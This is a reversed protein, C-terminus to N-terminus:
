LKKGFLIHKKRMESVSGQARITGLAGISSRGNGVSKRAGKTRSFFAPKKRRVILDRLKHSIVRGTAQRGVFWIYKDVMAKWTKLKDRQVFPKFELLVDNLNVAGRYRVLAVIPSIRVHRIFVLSPASPAYATNAQPFCAKSGENGVFAASGPPLSCSAPSSPRSAGGTLGPPDSSAELSGGEGKGRADRDELGKEELSVPQSSPSRAASSSAKATNPGEESPSAQQAAVGSSAPVGPGTLAKAGKLPTPSSVLSPHGPGAVAIGPHKGKPNASALVLEAPASASTPPFFFAYLQEVLNASLRVRLPDIHLILSDFVQWVTGALDVFRWSCRVSIAHASVKSRPGHGGQDGLLQELLKGRKRGELEENWDFAERRRDDKTGLRGAGGRMSAFELGERRGRGAREHEPHSASLPSGSSLSAGGGQSSTPRGPSHLFFANRYASLDLFVDQEDDVAANPQLVDLLPTIVPSAVTGPPFLLVLLEAASFPAESWATDEQHRWADGDGVSDARASPTEDESATGAAELANTEASQWMLSRRRRQEDGEWWDADHADGAAFPTDDATRRRTRRKEKARAREGEGQTGAEDGSGRHRRRPKANMAAGREGQCSEGTTSTGPLLSPMAVSSALDQDKGGAPSSAPQSFAKSKRKLRMDVQRKCWQAAAGVFKNRAHLTGIQPLQTSRIPQAAGGVLTRLRAGEDENREDTEGTEVKSSACSPLLPFSQSSEADDLVSPLAPSASGARGRSGALAAAAPGLLPLSPSAASSFPIRHASPTGQTAKARNILRVSPFPLFFPLDRSSSRSSPEASFMASTTSSGEAFDDGEGAADATEEKKETKEKAELTGEPRRREGAVEDVSAKSPSGRDDGRRDLAGVGGPASSAREAEQYSSTERELADERKDAEEAREAGRRAELAAERARLESWPGPEARSCQGSAPERAAQNQADAGETEGRRPKRRLGGLMQLARDRVVSKSLLMKGAASVSTITSAGDAQANDSAVASSPLALQLVSATGLNGASDDRTAGDVPARRKKGLRKLLSKMRETQLALRPAPLASPHARGQDPRGDRCDSFFSSTAKELDEPRTTRPAPLVASAGRSARRAEAGGSSVGTGRGVTADRTCSFLASSSASSLASVASASSVPSVPALPLPPLASGPSSEHPLSAVAADQPQEHPRSSGPNVPTGAVHVRGESDGQSARAPGLSSATEASELNNRQEKSGQLAAAASLRRGTFCCFPLNHPGALLSWCVENILVDALIVKEEGAGPPSQRSSDEGERDERERMEGERGRGEGARDGGPVGTDCAGSRTRVADGDEGENEERGRMERMEREEEVAAAAAAAAAAYADAGGRGRGEASFCRPRWRLNGGAGDPAGQSEDRSSRCRGATARGRASERPDRAQAQVSSSRCGREEEAQLYALLQRRIAASRFLAARRPQAPTSAPAQPKERAAFPLSAGLEGPKTADGRSHGPRQPRAPSSACPVPPAFSSLQDEKIAELGVEVSSDEDKGGFRSVLDEEEEDESSSGPGGGRDDEGDGAKRLRSRSGRGRRGAPRGAAVGSANRSDARSGAPGGSELEAQAAPDFPGRKARSSSGSVVSYLGGTAGRIAAAAASAAAAAASAAMAGRSAKVSSPSALSPRKDGAVVPAAAAATPLSSETGKCATPAKMALHSLPAKKKLAAARRPVKVTRVLLFAHTLNQLLRCVDASSALLCTHCFLRGSSRGMPLGTEAMLSLDSLWLVPKTVRSACRRPAGPDCPPASGSADGREERGRGAGRAGSQAVVPANAHTASQSDRSVTRRTERSPSRSLPQRGNGKAPSEAAAGNERTGDVPQLQAEPSNSHRPAAPGALADFAKARGPRAARAADGQRPSGTEAARLRTPLGGLGSRSDTPAPSAHTLRSVGDALLNPAELRPGALRRRAALSISQRQPASFFPTGRRRGGQRRENEAPLASELLADETSDSACRWSESDSSPSTESADAPRRSDGKEERELKKGRDRARGLRELFLTTQSLRYAGRRREDGQCAWRDGGSSARGEEFDGEEERDLSLWREGIKGSAQCVTRRRQYAASQARRLVRAQRLLGSPLLASADLAQSGHPRAEGGRREGGWKGVGLRFRSLPRRSADGGTAVPFHLGRTPKGRSRQRVPASRSAPRGALRSPRRPKPQSRRRGNEKSRAPFADELQESETEDLDHGPSWMSYFSERSSNSVSYRPVDFFEADTDSETATDLVAGVRHVDEEELSRLDRGRAGLRVSRTENGECADVGRTTGAKRGKDSARARGGDGREEDRGESKRRKQRGWQRAGQLSRRRRRRPPRTGCHWMLGGPAALSAVSGCLPSVRGLLDISIRSSTPSASAAQGRGGIKIRCKLAVQSASLILQATVRDGLSCRLDELAEEEALAQKEEEEDLPFVEVCESQPWDGWGQRRAAESMLALSVPAGPAEIPAAFLLSDSPLSQLLLSPPSSAWPETARDLSPPCFDPPRGCTASHSVQKRGATGPRADLPMFLPSPEPRLPTKLLGWSGENADSKPFDKDRSVGLNPDRREPTERANTTGRSESRNGFEEGEGLRKQREDSERAEEKGSEGRGSPRGEKGRSEASGQETAEASCARGSGRARRELQRHLWAGCRIKAYPQLLPIVDVHAAEQRVQGPLLLPSPSLSPLELCSEPNEADGAGQACAAAGAPDVALPAFLWPSAALFPSGVVRFFVDRRLELLADDVGLEGLALPPRARRPWSAAASGLSAASFALSTCASTAFPIALPPVNARRVSAAPLAAPVGPFLPPTRATAEIFHANAQPQLCLLTVEVVVLPASSKSRKGSAPSSPSGAARDRQGSRADQSHAAASDRVSVDSAVDRLQECFSLVVARCADALLVVHRICVLTSPSVLVTPASVICFLQMRGVRPPPSSAVVSSAAERGSAATFRTERPRGSVGRRKRRAGDPGCSERDTTAGGEDRTQVGQGLTGPEGVTENERLIEVQIGPVRVFPLVLSQPPPVPPPVRVGCLRALAAPSVRGFARGRGESQEDRHGGARRHEAASFGDGGPSGLLAKGADMDRETDKVSESLGGARLGWRSVGLTGPVRRSFGAARRAKRPGSDAAGGDGAGDASGHIPFSTSRSLLSSSSLSPDSSGFSDGERSGVSALPEPVSRAPVGKPGNPNPGAHASHGFRLPADHRAELLSDQAPLAPPNERVPKRSGPSQLAPGGAVPTSSVYCHGSAPGSLQYAARYRPQSARASGSARNSLLSTSAPAAPCEFGLFTHHVTLVCQRTTLALPNGSPVAATKDVRHAEPLRASAPSQPAFGRSYSRFPLPSHEDLDVLSVRTAAGGERQRGARVSPDKAAAGGVVGATRNAEDAGSGAERGWLPSPEEATEGELSRRRRGGERASSFARGCDRRGDDSETETASSSFGSSTARRTDRGQAPRRKRSGSTDGSSSWGEEHGEWTGLGEFWPRRTSATSGRASAARHNARCEKAQWRDGRRHSGESSSGSPLSHRRGSALLRQKEGSRRPSEEDSERHQRAIRLVRSRGTKHLRGAAGHGSTTDGDEREALPLRPVIENRELSARRRSTKGGRGDSLSSSSAVEWGRMPADVSGSEGRGAWSREEGGSEESSSSSRDVGERRWLTEKAFAPPRASTHLRPSLPGRSHSAERRRTGRTDSPLLRSAPVPGFHLADRYEVGAISARALAFKGHLDSAAFHLFVDATLNETLRALPSTASPSKRSQAAKWRKLQLLLREQETRTGVLQLFLALHEPLCNATLHRTSASGFRPLEHQAEAAAAGFCFGGESGVSERWTDRKAETKSDSAGQGRGLAPAGAGSGGRSRRPAQVGKVQAQVSVRLHHRPQSSASLECRLPLQKPGNRLWMREAKKEPVGSPGADPSVDPSAGAGPGSGHAGASGRPGRGCAADGLLHAALSVDVQAVHLLRPPSAEGGRADPKRRGGANVESRCVTRARSPARGPATERGATVMTTCQVGQKLAVRAELSASLSLPSPALRARKEADRTGDRKEEGRDQGWGESRRSQQADGAGTRGSSQAETRTDAAERQAEKDRDASRSRAQDRGEALSQSPSPWALQARVSAAAQPIALRLLPVGRIEFLAEAGASQSVDVLFAQAVRRASVAARSARLASRRAKERQRDQLAADAWALQILADCPVGPPLPGARVVGDVAAAAAAAIRAQRRANLQHAQYVATEKAIAGQLRHAEAAATAGWLGQLLRLSVLTAAGTEAVSACCRVQLGGDCHVTVAVIEAEYTSDSSASSPRSSLPPLPVSTGASSAAPGSPSVCTPAASSVAGPAPPGDRPTGAPGSPLCVRSRTGRRSLARESRSEGRSCDVRLVAREQVLAGHLLSGRVVWAPAANVEVRLGPSSAEDRDSTADRLRPRQFLPWMTPSSASAFLTRSAGPSFLLVCFDEVMVQTVVSPRKCCLAATATSAAPDFQAAKHPGPRRASADQAGITQTCASVSNAARESPQRSVSPKATCAGDGDRATESGVLASVSALLPIPPGNADERAAATEANQPAAPTPAGPTAPAVTLGASPSASSHPRAFSAAAARRLLCACGPTDSDQLAVSASSLGFLLLPPSIRPWLSPQPFHSLFCSSRACCRSAVTANIAEVEGASESVRFHAVAARLAPLVVLPPLFLFLDAGTVGCRNSRLTQARACDGEGVAEGSTTHDGCVPLFSRPTPFRMGIASPALVAVHFDRFTLEVATKLAPSASSAFSHVPGNRETSEGDPGPAGSDLAPPAAARPPSDGGSAGSLSADAPNSCAPGPPPSSRESSCPSQTSDRSPRPSPASPFQSTRSSSLGSPHVLVPFSSQPVAGPNKPAAADLALLGHQLQAFRINFLWAAHVTRLIVVTSESVSQILHALLSADEGGAPLRRSSLPPLCVECGIISVCVRQQEWSTGRPRQTSPTGPALGASVASGVSLGADGRGDPQPREHTSDGVALGAADGRGDPQPREHTSDGVALGAASSSPSPTRPSSPGRTPAAVASHSFDARADVFVSEASGQSPSPAESSSLATAPSLAASSSPGNERSPLPPPLTQLAPVGQTPEAVESPSSDPRSRIAQVPKKANVSVRVTACRLLPPLPLPVFALCSSVSTLPPLALPSPSGSRCSPSLSEESCFECSEDTGMEPVAIPNPASKKAPRAAGSARSRGHAQRGFGTDPSVRARSGVSRGREPSTQSSCLSVFRIHPASLAVDVRPHLLPPRGRSPPAGSSTAVLRERPPPRGKPSASAMSETPSPSPPSVLPQVGIILRETSLALNSTLLFDLDCMRVFIRPEAAGAVPVDAKLKALRHTMMDSQAAGLLNQLPLLFEACVRGRPSGIEISVEPRAFPLCVLLSACEAATCVGDAAVGLDTRKAEPSRSNPSKATARPAGTPTTESACLQALRGPFIFPVFRSVAENGADRTQAAREGLLGPISLAGEGRAGQGQAFAGRKALTSEGAASDEAEKAERPESGSQLVELLAPAVRLPLIAVTTSAAVDSSHVVLVNSVLRAVAARTGAENGQAEEAGERSAADESRPEAPEDRGEVTESPQAHPADTPTAPRPFLPAVPSAPPLPTVPSFICINFFKAHFCHACRAEFAPLDKEAELLHNLSAETSVPAAFSATPHMFPRRLERWEDAESTQGDERTAADEGGDEDRSAEAEDGNQGRQLDDGTGGSQESPAPVKNEERACACGESQEAGEGRGGARVTRTATQPPGEDRAARDAQPTRRRASSPGSADAKRLKGRGRNDGSALAEDQSQDRQPAHPDQAEAGARCDDRAAGSLRSAAADLKLKAAKSQLKWVSKLHLGLMLWYLLGREVWLLWGAAATLRVSQRWRPLKQCSGVAHLSAVEGVVHVVATRDRRVAGHLTVPPSSAAERAKSSPASASPGPASASRQSTLRAECGKRTEEFNSPGPLTPTEPAELSALSLRAYPAEVAFRFRTRAVVAWEGEPQKKRTLGQRKAQGKPAAETALAGFEVRNMRRLPAHRRSATQSREPLTDLRARPAQLLSHLSGWFMRSSQREVTPLRGNATSGWLTLREEEEKQRLLARPCVLVHVTEVGVRATVQAADLLLAWPASREFVHVTVRSIAATIPVKETALEVEEQEDRDAALAPRDGQPSALARRGASAQEAGPAFRRLLSRLRVAYIFAWYLHVLRGIQNLPLNILLDSSAEVKVKRVSCLKGPRKRRTQPRDAGRQLVRAMDGDKACLALRAASPSMGLPSSAASSIATDLFVRVDLSATVFLPPLLMSSAAVADAFARCLTSSSATRGLPSPAAFVFGSSPPCRSAADLPSASPPFASQLPGGAQPRPGNRPPPSALGQFPACWAPNSPVGGDSGSSPGALGPSPSAGVRDTYFSLFSGAYGLGPSAELLLTDRSADKERTQGLVDGANHRSGAGDQCAAKRGTEDQASPLASPLASAAALFRPLPNVCHTVDSPLIRHLDESPHLVHMALRQKVAVDVYLSAFQGGPLVLLDEVVVVFCASITRSAGSSSPSLLASGLDTSPESHPAPKAFGDRSVASVGAPRNTASAFVVRQRLHLEEERDYQRRERDAESSDYSASLLVSLYLRSVRFACARAALHVTCLFLVSQFLSARAPPARIPAGRHPSKLHPAPLAPPGAAASALCGARLPVSAEPPCAPAEEVGDRAPEQCSWKDGEKQAAGRPEAAPMRSSERPSCRLPAGAARSRLSVLALFSNDECSARSLSRREATGAPKKADTIDEGSIAAADRRGSAGAATHAHLAKRLGTSACRPLSSVFPSPEVSRPSPAAVCGQLRGTPKTARRSPADTGPEAGGAGDHKGSTRAGGRKKRGPSAEGPDSESARQASDGPEAQAEGNVSVHVGVTSCEVLLRLTWRWDPLEVADGSEEGSQAPRFEEPQPGAAPEPARQREAPSESFPVRALSLLRERLWPPLPHVAANAHSGVSEVIWRCFPAIRRQVGDIWQQWSVRDGGGPSTRALPMYRLRLRVDDVDIRAALRLTDCTAPVASPKETPDEVARSPTRPEEPPSPVPSEAPGRTGASPARLEPPEDDSVPGQELLLSVDAFRLFGAYRISVFTLFWENGDLNLGGEPGSSRPSSGADRSAGTGTPAQTAQPRSSGRSEPSAEGPTRASATAGRVASLLRRKARSSLPFRRICAPLLLSLLFPLVLFVAVFLFLLVHLLGLLTM